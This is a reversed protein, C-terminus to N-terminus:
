VLLPLSLNQLNEAFYGTQALLLDTIEGVIIKRRDISIDDIVATDFLVFVSLSDNFHSLVGICSIFFIM